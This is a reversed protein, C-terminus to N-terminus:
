RFKMTMGTESFFPFPKGDTGQLWAFSTNAIDDIDDIGDVFCALSTNAAVAADFSTASGPIRQSPCLIQWYSTLEEHRDYSVAEADPDLDLAREVVKLVTKLNAIKSSRTDLDLHFLIFRRRAGESIAHSLPYPQSRLLCLM